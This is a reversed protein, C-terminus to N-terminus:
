LINEQQNLRIFFLLDDNLVVPEGIFSRNLIKTIKVSKFKNFSIEIQIISFEGTRMFSKNYPNAMQTMAYVKQRPTKRKLSNHIKILNIAAKSLSIKSALKLIEHFDFNEVYSEFKADKKSLVEILKHYMIRDLGHIRNYKLLLKQFIQLFKNIQKIEPNDEIKTVLESRIGTTIKSIIGFQCKSISMYQKLNLHNQNDFCGHRPWPWGLPPDFYMSGGNHRIFFVEDGCVPCHSIKYPIYKRIAVYNLEYTKPISKPKVDNVSSSSIMRKSKKPQEDDDETFFVRGDHRTKFGM